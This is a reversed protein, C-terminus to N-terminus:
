PSAKAARKAERLLRKAAALAKADIPQITKIRCGIGNRAHGPSDVFVRDFGAYIRNGQSSIGLQLAFDLDWCPAFFTLLYKKNGADIIVKEPGGAKETDVEEFGRLRSFFISSVSKGALTSWDLKSNAPLRESNAPGMVAFCLLFTALARM